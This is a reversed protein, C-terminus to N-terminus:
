GFLLDALFVGVMLCALAIKAATGVILGVWTATGVKLARQSAAGDASRQAYLEGAVAGVFPMFLVGILGMFLGVVTGAAAGALAWRSAGVRQAGLLAAVFDVALALVALVAVIAMTWGGVREFGDIWAGLALGALVLLVGPLAPLVTGALGVAVMAAALTWWLAAPVAPLLTTLAEM